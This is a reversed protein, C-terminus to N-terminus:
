LKIKLKVPASQKKSSIYGYFKFTYTGKKLTLQKSTKSIIWYKKNQIIKTKSTNKGKKWTFTVRWKKGIKKKKYKIKQPKGAVVTTPKISPSPSASPSPTRQEVPTPSPQIGGEKIAFLTGSDNSYYLTGDSDSVVTSLCFQQHESPEYLTKIEASTTQTDDEIYYVGGPVANQTFYVYVKYNNEPTAYGTSVLPSSKIDAIDATQTDYIVQFTSADVVCLHGTNNYCTCVYLRGNYITPTSTCNVNATNNKVINLAKIEEFHGDEKLRIQYLYGNNSTTYFANTTEDYLIGARVKGESGTLNSLMYEDIVNAETLSHSVLKGNDGALILANDTGNAGGWYYGCADTFTWITSGTKTNLCYFLGNKGNASTTGAYLYSGQVYVKSLSQNGFSESIWSTTMTDINVCEVTGKSLPIYLSNNELIMNSVSNMSNSLTHTSLLQGSKNFRYLINKSTVFIDDQTVVPTSNMTIANEDSALNYTWSTTTQDTHIPTLATLVLILFYSIITKM